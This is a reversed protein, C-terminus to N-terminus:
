NKQSLRRHIFTRSGPIMGVGCCSGWGRCHYHQIRLRTHWLSFGQIIKFLYSCGGNIFLKHTKNKKENWSKTKTKTGKKKKKEKSKKKNATIANNSNQTMNRVMEQQFPHCTFFTLFAPSWTGSSIRLKMTHKEFKCSLEFYSSAFLFLLIPLYLTCKTWFCILIIQKWLSFTYLFWNINGNPVAHGIAGFEWKISQLISYMALTSQKWCIIGAFEPKSTYCKLM